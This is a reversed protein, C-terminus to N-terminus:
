HNKEMPGNLTNDLELIQVSTLEDTLHCQIGRSEFAELLESYIEQYKSKEDTTFVFHKFNPLKEFANVNAEKLVDRWYHETEYLDAVITRIHKFMPEQLWYIDVLCQTAIVRLNPFDLDTVSKDLQDEIFYPFIGELTDKIPELLLRLDVPPQIRTYFDIFKLTHKSAQVIDHIGGLDGGYTFAFYRLKSLSPPKLDLHGLSVCNLSLHELNPISLFLESLSPLDHTEYEYRSFWHNFRMSLSKLNDITKIAEMLHPSIQMACRFTITLSRLSQGLLKIIKALQDMTPPNSTGPISFEASKSNWLDNM